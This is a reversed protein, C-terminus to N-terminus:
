SCSLDSLFVSLQRIDDGDAPFDREMVISVDLLADPEVPIDLVTTEGILAFEQADGNVTIVGSITQYEEKPQYLEVHLLGDEGSRIQFASEKTLWGDNSYGSVKVCTDLTQGANTRSQAASFSEATSPILEEDVETFYCVYWKDAQYSGSYDVIMYTDSLYPASSLGLLQEKSMVCLESGIWIYFSTDDFYIRSDFATGEQNVIQVTKGSAVAYQTWYPDHIALADRTQFLDTTYVTAEGMNQMVPSKVMEEITGLRQFNEEHRQAFEGNMLQVPIMVCLMCFVAVWPAVKPPLRKLVQWLVFCCLFTALPYMFFTTPVAAGENGGFGTQYLEAMATPLTPLVLLLLTSLAILVSRQTRAQSDHMVKRVLAYVLASFAGCVLILRAIDDITIDQYIRFLYHYKPLTWYYGPFASRVLQVIIKVANLPDPLILHNGSYQSPIVRGIAFYLSLYITGTGVPWLFDRWRRLSERLGRQYVALAVYAPVFTVFSEYSCLTIFLFVVFAILKKHSRQKLWDWYQIMSLLLLSFPINYLTSFANPSNLEFSVPLFAILSLACFASFARDSFLRNLLKAFLLFVILISLMQLLKYSWSAQGWFGFSMTIPNIVSSLTRGSRLHVQFFEEFFALFGQGSYFRSQLEDNCMIGERYWPILVAFLFIGFLLCATRRCKAQEWINLMAERRERQESRKELM